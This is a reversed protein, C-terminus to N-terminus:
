ITWRGIRLAERPTLAPASRSVTSDRHPHPIRPTTPRITRPNAEDRAACIDLYARESSEAPEPDSGQTRWSLRRGLARWWGEFVALIRRGLAGEPREARADIGLKGTYANPVGRTDFEPATRATQRIAIHHSFSQRQVRNYASRSEVQTVPFRTPHLLGRSNSDRGMRRETLWKAARWTRLVLRRACESTRRQYTRLATRM